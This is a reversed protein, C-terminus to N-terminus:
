WESYDQNPPLGGYAPAAYLGWHIFIGYKVDNFWEPNWHHQISDASATYDGIGCIGTVPTSTSKEDGYKSGWTATVTGSCQAGPAVNAKNRVGVQVVAAQKSILRTLTAPTVVEFSDSTANVNLTDALTLANTGTNEVELELVQVFDSGEIWKSTLVPGNLQLDPPYGDEVTTLASPKCALM